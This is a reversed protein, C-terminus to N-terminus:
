KMSNADFVNMNTLLSFYLAGLAWVDVKYDYARSFLLEPAM